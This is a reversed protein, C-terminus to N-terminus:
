LGLASAARRREAAKLRSASSVTSRLVTTGSALQDLRPAGSASRAGKTHMHRLQVSGGLSTRGQVFRQQVSLRRSQKKGDPRTPDVFRHSCALQRVHSDAAVDSEQPAVEFVPNGAMASAACLFLCPGVTWSGRAM